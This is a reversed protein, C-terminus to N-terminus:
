QMTPNDVERVNIYFSNQLMSRQYSMDYSKQKLYITLFKCFSQYLVHYILKSRRCLISM